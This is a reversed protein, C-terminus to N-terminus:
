HFCWMLICHILVILHSHRQSIDCLFVTKTLLEYKCYLYLQAIPQTTAELHVANVRADGRGKPHSHFPQAQQENAPPSGTIQFAERERHRYTQRNPSVSHLYWDMMYPPLLILHTHTHTHTHSPPIPHALTHLSSNWPQILSFLLTRYHLM